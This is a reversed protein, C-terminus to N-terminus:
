SIINMIRLKILVMLEDDDDDNDDDFEDELEIWCALAVICQM